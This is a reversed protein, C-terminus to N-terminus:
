VPHIIWIHSQKVFTTCHIHHVSERGGNQVDLASSLTYWVRVKKRLKTIYIARPLTYVRYRAGHQSHLASYPTNLSYKVSLPTRLHGRFMYHVVYPRSAKETRSHVTGNM